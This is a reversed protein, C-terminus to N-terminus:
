RPKEQLGLSLRLALPSNFAPPSVTAFIAACGCKQTLALLPTSTGMRAQRTWAIKSGTIRANYVRAENHPSVPALVHEDSEPGAGFFIDILQTFDETSEQDALPRYADAIDTSVNTDM